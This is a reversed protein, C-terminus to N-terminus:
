GPVPAPDWRPSHCCVLLVPLVDGQLDRPLKPIQLFPASWVLHGVLPSSGGTGLAAGGPSLGEEGRALLLLYINRPSSLLCTATSQIGVDVAGLTKM